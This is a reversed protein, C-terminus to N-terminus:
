HREKKGGQADHDARPGMPQEALHSTTTNAIFYFIKTIKQYRKDTITSSNSYMKVQYLKRNLEVEGTDAATIRDMRKDYATTKVRM